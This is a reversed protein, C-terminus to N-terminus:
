FLAAYESATLLSKHFFLLPYDHSLRTVKGKLVRVVGSKDKGAIPNKTKYCVDLFICIFFGTIIVPKKQFFM